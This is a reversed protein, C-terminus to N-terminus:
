KKICQRLIEDINPIQPKLSEYVRVFLENDFAFDDAILLDEYEDENLTKTITEWLGLEKLKAKVALKSFRLTKIDQPKSTTQEPEASEGQFLSKSIESYKAKIQEETFKKPMYIETLLNGPHQRDFLFMGEDPTVYILKEKFEIKM